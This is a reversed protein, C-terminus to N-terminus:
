NMLLVQFTTSLPSLLQIFLILWKPMILMLLLIPKLLWRLSFKSGLYVNSIGCPCYKNIFSTRYISIYPIYAYLLRGCKVCALVRRCSKSHMYLQCRPCKVSCLKKNTTTWKIYDFNWNHYWAKIVVCFM